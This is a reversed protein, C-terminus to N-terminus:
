YKMVSVRFTGSAPDQSSAGYVAFRVTVTNAASVWASYSGGSVIADHPVGLSVADGLAAGTVTITLNSETQSATSPFNLSATTTLTKALTYRITGSTAYYNTGDFEVAGAEPTSLNTGATFKLPANGASAAGAAIHLKAAPVFSGIDGTGIIVRHPIVVRGGENIQFLTSTLVDVTSVNYVGFLARSSDITSQRPKVFAFSALADVMKHEIWRNNAGPLYPHVYNHGHKNIVYDNGRGATTSLRIQSGGTPHDNELIIAAVSTADRKFHGISAPENIGIGLRNDYPSHTLINDKGFGVKGGNGGEIGGWLKLTGATTDAGQIVPVSLKVGVKANGNVSLRYGNDISTALALNGSPSLRMREIGNVRFALPFNDNTGITTIDGFSNGNQKFFFNSLSALSPANLRITDIGFVITSDDEMFVRRFETRGDGKNFLFGKVDKTSNELILEATCSDNTILVSDAKLKYVFQAITEFRALFSLLLLILVKKM